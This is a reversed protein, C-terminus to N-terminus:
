KRYAGKSKVGQGEIKKPEKEKENKWMEVKARADKVAQNEEEELFWDLGKQYCALANKRDNVTEYLKGLEFYRGAHSPEIALANKMEQIAM